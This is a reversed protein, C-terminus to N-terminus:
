ALYTARLAAIKADTLGFSAKALAVPGGHERDVQALVRRMVEPDSGMIVDLVEAPMKSFAEAMQPTMGASAADGGAMLKKYFTPPTYIQTLGYDFLVTERPVGLVSLVLASGMGTRDKGASCNLALPADRRVLREFMDTYHPTLVRLFQLYSAAFADVAQDRTRATFLPAMSSDMDYDFAAVEAYEAKLFASPESSREQASRLDCVSRVGVQALYTMDAPTLQSMVGSRFIKGWRVQRGDATRYGGLDRFNRGGQLPLLREAVRTEGAATAVLLYPRPASALALEARGGAAGSKLLRMFERPADPDSSVYLDAPGAGAWEVRLAKPGTRAAEAELGTPAALARPALAASGTAVAALLFSRRDM